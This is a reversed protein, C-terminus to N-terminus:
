SQGGESDKEGPGGSDGGDEDGTKESEEAEAEAADRADAAAEAEPGTLEMFVDELSPAERYLARLIWKRDVCLGFLKEELDGQPLNTTLSVTAIEGDGDLAAEKVGELSAFADRSVGRGRLEAKIVSQGALRKRLEQPTGEGVIKGRNIILVRNCVQEVEPLIHTSLILTRQEGLERILKRTQRIQSPDLGITPEDLILIPPQSILADALGTRQRFGKSLHAIVKKEVEKLQCEEVVRDVNRAIQPGRVGKLEARFKLYERVRMEQYLPVSEPLYGLLKKAQLPQEIVDFGGVVARGSTPPIFATIIRMTTTKGAGNPGLFGVIDGKEVEFSVHDLATKSNFRKTLNQVQILALRKFVQRRRGAEPRGVIRLSFGEVELTLLEIDFINGKKRLFPNERGRAM